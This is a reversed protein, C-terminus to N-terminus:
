KEGFLFSIAIKQSECTVPVNAWLRFRAFHHGYHVGYYAQWQEQQIQAVNAVNKRFAEFPGIGTATQALLDRKMGKKLCENFNSVM